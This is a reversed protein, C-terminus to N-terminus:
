VPSLMLCPSGVIASIEQFGKGSPSSLESTVPYLTCTTPGSGIRSIGTGSAFVVDMVTDSSLGEVEYMKLTLGMVLSPFPGIAVIM